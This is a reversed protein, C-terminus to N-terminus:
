HAVAEDFTIEDGAEVGKWDKLITGTYKGNGISQVNNVGIKIAGSKLLVVSGIETPVTPRTGSSSASCLPTIGRRKDFVNSIDIM